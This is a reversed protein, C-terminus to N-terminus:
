VARREYGRGLEQPQHAGHAFFMMALIALLYPASILLQANLSFGIAPLALRLADAAGFLLCGLVTGRVSWGGFIVAAIAIFGRGATMNPSFAGIGGVALYAGGLGACLGCFMIAQRRVRNVAVGSADAAAPNEGVAQVELGWRTRHLVWWVLPVLGYILFFPIRGEFLADGVIPLRALLPVKWRGFQQTDLAISSFLFTTAGLVLINLALGVVFQNVTVRHSLTAQVLAVLAGVGIGIVAGLLASNTVSSGWAAGFASGLMMGEVSINLTGAREAVLEGLAVFLLPVALRMASDLVLAIDTTV